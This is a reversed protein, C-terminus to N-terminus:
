GSNATAAKQNLFAFLTGHTRLQMQWDTEDQQQLKTPEKGSM